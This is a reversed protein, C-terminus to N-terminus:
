RSHEPIILSTEHHLITKSAISNKYDETANNRSMSSIIDKGKIIGHMALWVLTLIRTRKAIIYVVVSTFFSLSLFISYKERTEASKIRALRQKTTQLSGKLEYKHDHLTDQLIAGDQLLISVADDANTVSSTMNTHVRKLSATISRANTVAAAKNDM